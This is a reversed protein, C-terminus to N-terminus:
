KGGDKPVTALRPRAIRRPGTGGVTSKASQPEEPRSVSKANQQSWELIRDIQAKHSTSMPVTHGLAKVIHAMALDDNSRDNYAIILADKVVAEIEAPLFGESEKIFLAIDAQDFDEISRKRRRLHVSLVEVRETANPLGVSFVEDLRGKRFLEPPLGEIRNATLIVFVDSKNEQMWTLFTGLVRSSVGSDNSGGGIGGLGKDIEDAFLVLRGMRSVMNLASRMRQESDGVFKSFVNGFDLRILPVGWGGAVAKAILSKGAGPVGVIAIGKPPEVGFEKAEDSFNDSRDDVWDKLVGMGGVNNMDETPMLELIDSQKVVETKGKAIGKMLHDATIVEAGAESAEVMAVAAHTEFEYRSMGLGLLAIQSIEECSVDPPGDWAEEDVGELLRTLSDELESTTPTPMDTVLVTGMPLGELSIDPTIFVLCVNFSPLGAAYQQLLEIIIPNEMFPQPNVFVFCHVQEPSTNVTSSADRLQALPLNIAEFFDICSDSGPAFSSTYNELTFERFGNVADWERHTYINPESLIAKRLAIATRVTERSRIQILSGGADCLKNFHSLLEEESTLEVAPNANTKM